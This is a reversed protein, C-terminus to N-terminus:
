KIITFERQKLIGNHWIKNLMVSNGSISFESKITDPKSNGFKILTHSTTEGKKYDTYIRIKDVGAFDKFLLFGKDAGMLPENYRQPQGNVIYYVNINSKDYTGNAILDQGQQNKVVIEINNGIVNSKDKDCSPLISLSLMLATLYFAKM